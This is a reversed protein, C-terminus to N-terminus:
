EKCNKYIQKAAESSGLQKAKSWYFCAGTLDDLEFHINGKQLYAESLTPDLDLAMGFDEDAKQIQNIKLAMSGRELFYQAHAQDKELLKDFYDMANQTHGQAKELLGLQMYSEPVEPYLGVYLELDKEAMQYNGALRAMEGRKLYYLANSPDVRIAKTLDDIGDNYKKTKKLLDAEYALYVDSFSYLANAKQIATLALAPLNTGEYARAQLYFFEHRPAFKSEYNELESLADAARKKALLAYIANKETELETFWDKKWLASWGSLGKLGAFAPENIIELESKKSPLALYKELWLFAKAPENLRAYCCALEFDSSNRSISDAKLYYDQARTYEKKQYYSEGEWKFVQLSQSLSGRSSLVNLASDAKKQNLYARAKLLSIDAKQSWGAIPILLIWIFIFIKRM